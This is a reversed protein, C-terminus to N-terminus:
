HQALTLLLNSGFISDLAKIKAVTDYNGSTVMSAAVGKIADLAGDPLDNIAARMQSVPLALIDKLDKTSYLSNYLTNLESHQSLFEKDQIIIRPRYICPKHARIMYVLDQYEVEEVDGYDAWRYLIDSKDGTILLKGNTISKCLIADEKEYKRPKTVVADNSQDANVAENTNVAESTNEVITTNKRQYAM